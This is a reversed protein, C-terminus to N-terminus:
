KLFRIEARRNQAHEEETQANEVIPREKGCGVSRLRHPDVGRRILDDRLIDARKQSLKKNYAENGRSDTHGSIEFVADPYSNIFEVIEEKQVILADPENGEWLTFDYYYWCFGTDTESEVTNNGNSAMGRKASCGPGCIVLLTVLAYIIQKMYVYKVFRSKLTCFYNKRKLRGHWYWYVDM